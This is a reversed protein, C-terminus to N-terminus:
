VAAHIAEEGLFAPCVASRIVETVIDVLEPRAVVFAIPTYIEHNGGQLVRGQSDTVIVSLGRARAIPLVGAVDYWYPVSGGKGCLARVDLCVCFSGRAVNIIDTASSGTLGGFAPKLGKEMLALEVRAIEVLAKSNYIGCLVRRKAEIKAEEQFNLTFPRLLSDDRFAVYRPAGDKDKGRYVSSFVEGTDFCYLASAVVEGLAPLVAAISIASGPRPLPCDGGYKWNDFAKTGDIPDIVLLLIQGNVGFPIKRGNRGYPVLSIEETLFGVDIKIGYKPFIEIVYRFILSVANADNSSSVHDGNFSQAEWVEGHSREMEKGVARVVDGLASRLLYLDFPSAFPDSGVRRNPHFAYIKNAM